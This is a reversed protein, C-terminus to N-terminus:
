NTICSIVTRTRTCQLPCGLLAHLEYPKVFKKRNCNSSRVNGNCFLRSGVTQKLFQLYSFYCNSLVPVFKLCVKRHHLTIFLYCFQVQVRNEIVYLKATFFSSASFYKYGCYDYLSKWILSRHTCKLLM